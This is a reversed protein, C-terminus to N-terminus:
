ETDEKSYYPHQHDPIMAVSGFRPKGMDHIEAAAVITLKALLLGGERRLSKVHGVHIPDKCSGHFGLHAPPLYSDKEKLKEFDAVMADLDEETTKVGRANAHEIDFVVWEEGARRIAPLLVERFIDHPSRPDAPHDIGLVELAAEIDELMAVKGQSSIALSGKLRRIEKICSLMDKGSQAVSESGNLCLGKGFREMRQIEEESIPKNSDTM